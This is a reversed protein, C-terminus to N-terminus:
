AVIGILIRYKYSSLDFYHVSYLSPSSEPSEKKICIMNIFCILTNLNLLFDDLKEPNKMEETLFNLCNWGSYSFLGNYFAMAIGDYKIPYDTFWSKTLDALNGPGSLFSVFGIIIILLLASIKAITFASQVKSVVNVNFLNIM